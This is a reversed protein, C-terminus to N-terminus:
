KIFLMEQYTPLPWLEDSVVGELADVASRVALMAPVVEDRFHKAHALVDGESEHELAHGLTHIGSELSDTLGIMQDLLTTKPEKNLSKLGVALATLQAQYTLAAPLIKTKAIELVLLGETNIDLCYRDLYIEYRSAMERESLVGYKGMVAVNDPSVMTPLAEVTNRLNPLGRTAAEQHWDESYGNGGFIIASHECAIGQLVKQIAENLKSPDGKTAEELQTAIYDLSDAVICNLVVLPWAISQNSGVARFEFRNGTFAFPSTRNRDGAHRPLHPLTDVGIKLTGSKKSSGAPGVKLQNFVDELQEGLFISIIAPPAENAGLRHDNGA